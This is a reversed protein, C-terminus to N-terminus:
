ELREIAANVQEFLQKEYPTAAPQQALKSAQVEQDIQSELWNFGNLMSQLLYVDKLDEHRETRLRAEIVRNQFTLKKKLYQFGPHFQLSLVSERIEPTAAEPRGTPQVQVLQLERNVPPMAPDSFLKRLKTFM